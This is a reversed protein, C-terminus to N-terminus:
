AAQNQKRRRAIAGLLGLGALLMAYTEPEPIAPSFLSYSIFANDLNSPEALVSITFTATLKDFTIPTNDPPSFLICSPLQGSSSCNGGGIPGSPGPVGGNFFSITSADTAAPIGSFGRLGFIFFTLDVSAPITFSKDLTITADITDGLSVLVANTSDLGSLGLYWQDYRTSGITQNSFSGDDAIGTLDFSFNAAQAQGIGLALVAVAIMRKMMTKTTM